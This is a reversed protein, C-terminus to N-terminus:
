RTLLTTLRKQQYQMRFDAFETRKRARLAKIGSLITNYTNAHDIFSAVRVAGGPPASNKRTDGPSLGADEHMAGRKHGIGQGAM